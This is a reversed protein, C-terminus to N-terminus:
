ARGGDARAKPLPSALAIQAPEGPQGPGQPHRVELDQGRLIFRPMAAVELLLGGLPPVLEFRNTREVVQRGTGRIRNSQVDAMVSTSAICAEIAWQATRHETEGPRSEVVLYFPDDLAQGREADMAAGDELVFGGTQARVFPTLTYDRDLTKLCDTILRKFVLFSALPDLHSYAPAAPPAISLDVGAVAGLIDCLMLYLQYPPTAEDRLMAELKPLPASLSRLTEVVERTEVKAGLAVSRLREALSTAKERLDVAIDTAVGHTRMTKAVRLAPYQYDLLSHKGDDLGVRALPVSAYNAGPGVAPSATAFLAPAPRLRPVPMPNDGLNVDAAPEGEVSRYRRRAGGTAAHTSHRAVGLHVTVGDRLAGRELGTLDLVLEPSGPMPHGVVLGDPLLADLRAVRFQGALLASRDVELARVGWLFPGAAHAQYAIRAELRHSEQQFHQPALLMGEYWQVAEPLSAAEPWDADASM